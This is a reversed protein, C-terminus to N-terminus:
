KELQMRLILGIFTVFLFGKMTSEKEANLPLVQLDQRMMRFATEVADREWYVMLCEQWDLAGQTLIIQKGMRNVRQSVTNKRIEIRFRDDDVHWSFNNAM